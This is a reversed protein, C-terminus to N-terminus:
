LFVIPLFRLAIGLRRLESGHEPNRRHQRVQEYLSAYVGYFLRVLEKFGTEGVEM